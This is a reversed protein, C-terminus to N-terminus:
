VPRPVDAKEFAAAMNRYCTRAATIADYGPQKSVMSSVECNIDGRYGGEYFQRILAAFDIADSEGALGFAIRDGTKVADKVAIHSTYPLATTITEALPMDRYAYHSYDYVIRLRKPNDLQNLLWVAEDPRSVVGGRHPKVAITTETSNALEVWKGLRDRLVSKVKEFSGGGLVTQVLPPAQPALDHAVDAALKLRELAFQQTEETTPYVHEMLSSLRLGTESLKSRIANRRATDLKASDADWGERVAIEVADFGIGALVDVMEETKQTQMAYTSFGLTLFGAAKDDASTLRTTALLGLCTSAHIAKAIVARRSLPTDERMSFALQNM